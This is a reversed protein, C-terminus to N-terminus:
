AASGTPKRTATSSRTTRTAHDRRARGLRREVDQQETELAKVFVQSRIYGSGGEGVVEYRFGSRDAETWVEMWASKDLKDNRAEFHRLARYQRPARTM